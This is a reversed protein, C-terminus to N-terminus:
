TARWMDRQIFRELGGFPTPGTRWGGIYVGDVWVSPLTSCGTASALRARIGPERDVDRADVLVPVHELAACAAECFPCGRVVYITVAHM